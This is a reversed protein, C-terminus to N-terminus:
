QLKQTLKCSTIKFNLVNLSIKCINVEAVNLILNEGIQQNSFITYKTKDWNLFSENENAWNKAKVIEAKVTEILENLNTWCFLLPMGWPNTEPGNCKM